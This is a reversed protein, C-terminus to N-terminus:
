FGRDLDRVVIYDNDDFDDSILVGCQSPFAYPVYFEGFGGFADILNSFNLVDGVGDEDTEDGVITIPKM